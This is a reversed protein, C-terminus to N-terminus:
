DRYVRAEALEAIVQVLEPLAHESVSGVRLIPEGSLGRITSALTPRRIRSPALLACPRNPCRENLRAATIELRGCVM